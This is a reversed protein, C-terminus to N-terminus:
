PLFKKIEGILDHFKIPKYIVVDYDLQQHPNTKEIQGTLLYLRGKFNLQSRLIRFLEHGSGSPMIADSIIISYNGTKIKSLASQIDSCIDISIGEEEFFTQALELLDTEDDVYLIPSSM